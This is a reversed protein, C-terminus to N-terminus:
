IKFAKKMEMAFFFSYCIGIVNYFWCEMNENFLLLCPLAMVNLLLVNLIMRKM